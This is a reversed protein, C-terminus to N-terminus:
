FYGDFPGMFLTCVSNSSASQSATKAIVLHEGDEKVSNM